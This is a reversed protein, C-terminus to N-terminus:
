TGLVKRLIDVFMPSLAAIAYGILASRIAAKGEEAARPNGNAALYRVGGVTLFLTALAALLGALWLRISDIVTNIDGPAADAPAGLSLTLLAVSVAILAARRLPSLRTM